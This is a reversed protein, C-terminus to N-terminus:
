MMAGLKVEEWKGNQNVEVKQAAVAGNHLTGSVRVTQGVHPALVLSPALIAHFKKDKTLLAAPSGGKLCLTGCQKVQGHDNGTLSNDMLYCKSDVLTGELTVAKEAAYVGAALALALVALVLFVSKRM